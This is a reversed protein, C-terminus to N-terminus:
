WGGEDRSFTLQNRMITDVLAISFTRLDDENTLDCKERGRVLIHMTEHILTEIREELPMDECIFIIYNNFDAKGVCDDIISDGAPILRVSWPVGQIIYDDREIRVKM